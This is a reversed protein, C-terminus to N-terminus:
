CGRPIRQRELVLAHAIQLAQSALYSHRAPEEAVLRPRM